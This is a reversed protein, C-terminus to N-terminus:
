SFFKPPRELPSQDGFITFAMSQPSQINNAFQVSIALDSAAIAITGSCHGYSCTCDNDCCNKHNGNQSHQKDSNMKMNETQHCPMDSAMKMAQQQPMINFECARVDGAGFMIVFALLPILVLNKIWIAM